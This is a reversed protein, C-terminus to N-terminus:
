AAPTPGRLDVILGTQPLLALLRILEDVFAEDDDLDFSWIRLYGVSGSLSEAALVDQMPTELWQGVPAPRGAPPPAVKDDGAWLKPKFMLKKARRVAEAAPDAAQKQAGLSGPECRPPRRARARAAALGAPDRGQPRAQHPLRHDGLGRGATPRLGLARLTLSELARARRSDPRGGTESDAHNEVARVFPMGNWSELEVGPGFGGATKADLVEENIKSVLYRPSADPGYQEALFPLM